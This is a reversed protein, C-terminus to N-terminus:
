LIQKKEFNYIGDVTETPLQLMALPFADANTRWRKNITIICLMVRVLTHLITDSITIICINTLLLVVICTKYERKNTIDNLMTKLYLVSIISIVPRSLLHSVRLSIKAHGLDAHLRMSKWGSWPACAKIGSMYAHMISQLEVIPHRIHCMRCLIKNIWFM